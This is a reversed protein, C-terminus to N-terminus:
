YRGNYADGRTFLIIRNNIQYTKKKQQQQQQQQQQQLIMLGVINLNLIWGCVALRVFWNLINDVKLKGNFGDGIGGKGNFREGIGDGIQYQRNFADCIRYLIIWDM